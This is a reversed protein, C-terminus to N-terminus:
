DKQRLTLGTLLPAESELLKQSRAFENFERKANVVTTQLQKFVETNQLGQESLTQLARENTRLEQQLSTFGKANANVVVKWYVTNNLYIKFNLRIKNSRSCEISGDKRLTTLLSKL